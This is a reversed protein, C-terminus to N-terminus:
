AGPTVRIDKVRVTPSIVSGVSRDDRGMADVKKLLEFINGSIMM